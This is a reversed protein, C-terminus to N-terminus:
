NRPITMSLLDDLSSRVTYGQVLNNDATAGGCAYDVLEVNLTGALDQPWVPGNSPVSKAHHYRLLHSCRSM